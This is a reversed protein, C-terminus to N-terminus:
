SIPEIITDVIQLLQKRQFPKQLRRWQPRLKNEHEPIYGSVILVSIDPDEKQLDHALEVGSEGPMIVDTILLRFVHPSWKKRAEQANRAFSVTWGANSLIENMMELIFWEDEVLLVHKERLSTPTEDLFSHTKPLRIVFRAGTGHLPNELSLRGCHDEIVRKCVALGIGTGYHKKTTFFPEFIQAQLPLSVGTGSDEIGITIYEDEEQTDIWITGKKNMADKANVLLNIIVQHLETASLSAKPDESCFSTHISLSHPMMGQALELGQQVITNISQPYRTEIGGRVLTLIRHISSSTNMVLHDLTDVRHKETQPVHPRLLSLHGMVATLMNNFNHAIGGSILGITELKAGELLKKELKKRKTIDRLVLLKTKHDLSVGVSEFLIEEKNHVISLEARENNQTNLHTFLADRSSCRVYLNTQHQIGLQLESAPNVEIIFGQTNVVLIPDQANRSMQEYRDAFLSEEMSLHITIGIAFLASFVPVSPPLQTYGFIALFDLIGGIILLSSFALFPISKTNKKVISFIIWFLAFVMYPPALWYMGYRVDQLLSFSSLPLLPISAISTFGFFMNRSVHIPLITMHGIILSSSAFSLIIAIIKTRLQWELSSFFVYWMDVGSIAVLLLSFFFIGYSLLHSQQPRILYRILNFLAAFLLVVSLFTSAAVRRQIYSIFSQYEGIWIQELIGGESNEGQIEITLEHNGLTYQDKPIMNLIMMRGHGLEEHEKASIKKNDWFVRVHHIPREILISPIDYDQIIDLNWTISVKQSPTIDFDSFSFPIRGQIDKKEPTSLSFPTQISDEYPQQRLGFLLILFLSGVLAFLISFPFLRKSPYPM